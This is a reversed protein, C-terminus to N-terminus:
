GAYGWEESRNTKGMRGDRKAATRETTCVIYLLCSSHFFYRNPTPEIAIPNEHNSQHTEFPSLSHLAHSSHLASSCKDSLILRNDERCYWRVTHNDENIGALTYALTPSPADSLPLTYQFLYILIQKTRHHSEAIFVIAFEKVVCCHTFLRTDIHARQTAVLFRVVISTNDHFVLTHLLALCHLFQFSDMCRAFPVPYLSLRFVKLLIKYYTHIHM